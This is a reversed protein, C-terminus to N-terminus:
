FQLLSLPWDCKGSATITNKPAPEFQRQGMGFAIFALKTRHALPPKLEWRVPLSCSVGFRGLEASRCDQKRHFRTRFVATLQARIGSLASHALLNASSIPGSRTTMITRM